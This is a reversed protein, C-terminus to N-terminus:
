IFKKFVNVSDKLWNSSKTDVAVVSVVGSTSIIDGAGVKVSDDFMVLQKCLPTTMLLLSSGFNRFIGVKKPYISIWCKEKFDNPRFINTLTLPDQNGVMDNAIRPIDDEDKFFHDIYGYSVAVDYGLSSTKAYNKKLISNVAIIVPSTDVEYPFELNVKRHYGDKQM